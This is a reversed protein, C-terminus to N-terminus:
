DNLKSIVKKTKLLFNFYEGRKEFNKFQDFSASAPSFIINKKKKDKIADTILDNLLNSLNNNSKSVIKDKLTKKFFNIKKGYIYAKINKFYKKNLM